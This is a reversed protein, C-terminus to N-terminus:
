EQGQLLNEQQLLGSVEAVSRWLEGLIQVHYLEAQFLVQQAQLYATYDYKADGQKYGIGVLRVSERARPLINKQYAETQQRAVQYRQYAATLRESLRLEVQREEARARDIDARAALINGENRNWCPIAAVVNIQMTYSDVITNYAPIAQVDINPIVEAQARALVREAQTVLTLAEQVESSRTLVAERTANWAFSPPTVDLSGGVENVAGQPDGVAAALLQQAARIRREAAARRLTNQDLEVQSRLVDPQSGAGAKQLSKAAELAKESLNVIERTTEYERQATLLEFYALRVRTIVNFYQTMAQWDAAQVGQRAAARALEIKNATVFTQTVQFGPEGLPNTRFGFANFRPGVIPNPYLGAQLLRGRAAVVRARVAALDPHRRSALEVLDELELPGTPLPEPVYRALSVDGDALSVPHVQAGSRVCGMPLGALLMWGVWRAYTRRVFM